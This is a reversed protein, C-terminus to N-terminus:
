PAARKQATGSSRLTQGALSKCLFASSAPCLGSFQSTAQIASPATSRSTPVYGLQAFFTTATTTLLFLFEVGHSDAFHEVYVVLERALGCGRYAPAVALSRLLAVSGLLELGVVASLSSDSRTGFFLPPQSLAIDSVPLGCKGLLPVIETLESVSKINTIMPSVNSM